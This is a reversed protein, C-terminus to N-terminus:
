EELVIMTHVWIEQGVLACIEGTAGRTPFLAFAASGSGSVGWALSNTAEAIAFFREYEPHRRRLPLLFDNPLLGVAECSRLRECLVRLEEQAAVNDFWSRGSPSGELTADLESFMDRTDCRWKPIILVVAFGPPNPLPTLAEGIGEGRAWRVGEVLFPVDAGIQPLMGDFVVNKRSRLWRVLAAANGSGAGLGSGPPIRKWLDMEFVPLVPNENRATRLVRFLINEGTVVADHVRLLDYNKVNHHTIERITLTELPGIRFFSTVLSHYGDMRKGTIRLTLNIKGHCHLQEEM